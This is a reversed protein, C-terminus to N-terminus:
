KGGVLRIDNSLNIKDVTLIYNALPDLERRRAIYEKEENDRRSVIRYKSSERNSYKNRIM